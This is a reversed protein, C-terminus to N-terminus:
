AGIEKLQNIRKPITNIFRDGYEVINFFSGNKFYNPWYRSDLNSNIFSFLLVIIIYGRLLGFLGGLSFDIFGSRKPQIIGIIVRNITSILIYSVILTLLFISIDAVTQSDIYQDFVPRLYVFINKLVYIIIIWKILNFFSKVLGNKASFFVSILCIIIFLIDFINLFDSFDIRDM